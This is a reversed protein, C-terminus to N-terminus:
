PPLAHLILRPDSGTHEVADRAASETDAQRFVHPLGVVPQDLLVAVAILDIDEAEAATSEGRPREDAQDGFAPQYAASGRDRGFLKPMRILDEATQGIGPRAHLGCLFPP